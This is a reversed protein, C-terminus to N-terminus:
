GSLPRQGAGYCVLGAGAVGDALQLDLLAAQTRALATAPPLGSRLNGHLELMVPRVADDPVPIVSAILTETGLALVAAALGMLENGPRVASMGADCASLVVVRPARELSELDYVTLAGDALELASFLPSDLRFRGHAAVHVLDAGDLAACAAECTAEDGTLRRADPYHQALAEVEDAAHSLNPGAILVVAGSRGTDARTVTRHWIAASPAVTVTRGRCSPLVSWPVAHLPGTPVLVLPRDGLDAALSGFLLNDLRNAGFEAAQRFALASAPSRVGLVLRRLSHRLLELENEVETLSALRRVTARGDAVVVAYLTGDDDVMEVLVQEDLASGLERRSVQPELGHDSSGSAHRARDRVAREVAAQRAVIRGTPRGELAAQELEAGVARLTALESALEADNPPRVPRLWLCGARWREAWALVRDAKGETIALHLGLSALDECYASSSARLETAGLTARYRNLIRVGARLAAEAGRRDGEALRLMAEAYWARSRLAVPGRRRAMSALALEDRAVSPRGLHLAIQAALIRADLAPVTFGAAGLADATRQAEALLRPSRDGDVWAARSSLYRALAVWTSRGQRSFARRAQAAAVRAVPADGELLAAEALMLRVEAVYGKRGEGELAEIAREATQRTEVLLRAALLSECRDYLGVSDVLGREEFYADAQDFLALAAPIDGARAAVVALNQRINTVRDDCGLVSYLQEARRLDAQAAALDGRRCHLLGRDNRLNAEGLLDNHRRFVPLARRYGELADDLRGQLMLATARNSELRAVSLGRVGPAAEDAQRLAGALDGCQALTLVLSVRAEAAEEGLGHLEAARVARQLHAISASLDSLCRAAIGLAHEATSAVRGDNGAGRLAELGLARARSPDAEAVALAESATASATPRSQHSLPLVDNM